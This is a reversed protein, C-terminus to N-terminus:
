GKKQAEEDDEAGSITRDILDCEDLYWCYLSLPGLTANAQAEKLLAIM